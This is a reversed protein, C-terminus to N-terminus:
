WVRKGPSTPSSTTLGDFATVAGRMVTHKCVHAEVTVWLVGVVVLSPSPHFGNSTDEGRAHPLGLGDVSHSRRVVGSGRRALDAFREKRLTLSPTATKVSFLDRGVM